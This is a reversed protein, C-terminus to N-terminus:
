IVKCSKLIGRSVLIRGYEGSTRAISQYWRSAYALDGAREDTLVCRLESYEFEEVRTTRV